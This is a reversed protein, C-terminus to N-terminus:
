LAVIGEVAAGAGVRQVATGAVVAQRPSRGAGAAIAHEEAVLAVVGEEHIRERAIVDDGRSARAPVGVLEVHGEVRVVEGDRIEVGAWPAVEDAEEPWEPLELHKVVQGRTIWEM